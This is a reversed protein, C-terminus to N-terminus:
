QLQPRLVQLPPPILAHLRIAYPIDQRVILGAGAVCWNAVQGTLLKNCMQSSIPLAVDYDNYYQLQTNTDDTLPLSEPGATNSPQSSAPCCAVLYVLLALSSWIM